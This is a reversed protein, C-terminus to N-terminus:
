PFNMLFLNLYWFFILFYIFNGIAVLHPVTLAKALQHGTSSTTHESDVRKRRVFSRFDVYNGADVGGLNGGEGFGMKRKEQTEEGKSKLKM